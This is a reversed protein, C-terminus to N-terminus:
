SVGAIGDVVLNNKLQFERIAVDVAVTFSDSLDVQYGLNNLLECLTIVEPTKINYKITKM